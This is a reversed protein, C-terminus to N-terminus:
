NCEWIKKGVPNIWVFPKDNEILQQFVNHTGGKNGDFVVLGADAREVMESNRMKYVNSAQNILRARDNKSMEDMTDEQGDFPICAAYPIHRTALEDCFWLDVGSAMGSLGYATNQLFTNELADFIAWQIWDIDYNELKFLRHGTILTKMGSSRSRNNRWSEYIKHM